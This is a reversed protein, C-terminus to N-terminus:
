FDVKLIYKYITGRTSTHELHIVGYNSGLSTITDELALVNEFIQLAQQYIREVKNLRNHSEYIDVTTKVVLLM